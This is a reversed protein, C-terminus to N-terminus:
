VTIIVNTICEVLTVYASDLIAETKKGSKNQEM